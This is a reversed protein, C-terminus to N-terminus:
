RSVGAPLPYFYAGEISMDGLRMALWHVPGVYLGPVSNCIALVDKAIPNTAGILSINVVGISFPPPMQHLLAHFRGYAKVKGETEVAPSAIYFRWYARDSAKLWFATAVGFGAQLLRDILKQGDAIRNEVLTDTDM